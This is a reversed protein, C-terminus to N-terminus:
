IKPNGIKKKKFFARFLRPFKSRASLYKYLAITLTSFYAVNNSAPPFTRVFSRKRERERESRDFSLPWFFSCPWPMVLCKRAVPQFNNPGNGTVIGLNHCNKCWGEREREERWGGGVGGGGEGKKTKITVM